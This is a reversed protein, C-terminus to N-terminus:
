QLFPDILTETGDQTKAVIGFADFDQVEHVETVYKLGGINDIITIQHKDIMDSASVGSLSGDSRIFLVIRYGGNGYSYLGAAVADQALTVEAGVNKKLEGNTLLSLRGSATLLIADLGTPTYWDNGDIDTLQYVVPDDAFVPSPMTEETTAEATTTEATTTEKTNETVSETTTQIEQTTPEEKKGAKCGALALVMVLTLLIIISKKM